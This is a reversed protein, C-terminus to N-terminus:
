GWAEDGYASLQVLEGDLELGSGVVETSAVRLDAGLGASPRHAVAAASIAAVVKEPNASTKSLELADYLYGALLKPYLRAFVDPRSVADLCWSTGISVLTGCQGPELEFAPVLRPRRAGAAAFGDASAATPSEVGRASLQADVTRWVTQQAAGVELSDAALAGAKQRRLHPSAVHEAPTFGGAHSWRGREVCSVPVRMASGAGVLVTIDLIRNQKAGVLEQGDYLLVSRGLPNKVALEGVMGASDVEGITFGLPMAEDLSIYESVPDRLPFLPTLTVGEHSRTQGLQFPLDLTATM